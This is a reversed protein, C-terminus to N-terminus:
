AALARPGEPAQVVAEEQVVGCYTAWAEMIPRRTELYDERVYDGRTASGVVHALSEEIMAEDYIRLGRRVEGNELTVTHVQGRAWTAFSARFGHLTITAGKEDVLAVGTERDKISLMLKRLGTVSVGAANKRTKRAPFIPGSLPAKTAGIPMMARLIAHHRATLPVRHLRRMKMREAPIAWCDEGWKMESWDADAAENARSASIIDWELALKMVTDCDNKGHVSALFAGVKAHPLSPHNRKARRKVTWRVENWAAPNSWGPVDIRNTGKAFDLVKCLRQRIDTARVPSREYYPELLQLVDQKTVDGPLKDAIYGITERNLSEVWETRGRETTLPKDFTMADLHDRALAYVCQPKPANAKAMRAFKADRRVERPNRGANFDELCKATLTKAEPISVKRVSGLQVEDPKGGWTFKHVWYKGAPKVVVGTGHGLALWKRDGPHAIELATLDSFKLHERIM